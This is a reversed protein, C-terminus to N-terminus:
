PLPPLGARARMANVRATSDNAERQRRETLDPGASSGGGSSASPSDPGTDPGMKVGLVREEEGRALVLEAPRVAKITWGALSDGPRVRRVKGEARVIAGGGTGTAYLGLIRVENLTDAAVAIAADAKPPPKRTPSFLPRDLAAMFSGLDASWPPSAPGDLVPKVPSPPTWRVARLEGQPTVWMWALLVALAANAVLLSMVLNRRM